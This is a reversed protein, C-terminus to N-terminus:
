LKKGDDKGREGKREEVWFFELRGVGGVNKM